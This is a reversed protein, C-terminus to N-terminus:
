ITLRKIKSSQQNLAIITEDFCNENFDLLSDHKALQQLTHNEKSLTLGIVEDALDIIELRKAASLNGEEIYCKLIRARFVLNDYLTYTLDYRDKPVGQISKGQMYYGLINSYNGKNRYYSMQMFYPNIFDRPNNGRRLILTKTEDLYNNYISFRSNSSSLRSIFSPQIFVTNHATFLTNGTEQKFINNWFDIIQANSVKKTSRLNPYQIPSETELLPMSSLINIIDIAFNMFSDDITRDCISTLNKDVSEKLASNPNFSELEIYTQQAKKLEDLNSCSKMFRMLREQEQKKRKILDRMYDGKLLAIIVFM